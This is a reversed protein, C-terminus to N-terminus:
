RAKKLALLDLLGLLLSKIQSETNYYSAKNGDIQLIINSSLSKIVESSHTAVFIQKGHLAIFQQLRKMLEVQLITHFHADPEDLLLVNIRHDFLLCFTSLWQLFGRGEAM